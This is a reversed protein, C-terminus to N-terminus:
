RRACSPARWGGRISTPVVDVRERVGSRPHRREAYTYDLTRVFRRSTHTLLPM